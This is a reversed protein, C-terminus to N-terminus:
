AHINPVRRARHHPKYRPPSNLSGPEILVLTKQRTRLAADRSSPTSAVVITLCPQRRPSPPLARPLCADGAGNMEWKEFKSALQLWADAMRLLWSRTAHDVSDYWMDLFRNACHYCDQLDPSPERLRDSLHDARENHSVKLSVPRSRVPLESLHGARTREGRGYSPRASRRARRPWEPVRSLRRDDESIGFLSAGATM